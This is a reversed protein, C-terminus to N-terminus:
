HAGDTGPALPLNLVTGHPGRDSADGTGPWLPMQQSTIVLARPDDQLLAQTGNGHHVDFDVVAVRALGHHELAHKAAIAVNGFVCFGMPLAQEAHHGPPRMAVFANGVTGDMVMDVAKVAGGAGRWIANHSTPSLFTEDDTGIDLGVFGQAPMRNRISDIYSQPHCRAITGDEALPADVRMVDLDALATHIYSLRAVQEPAGPPVHHSLGDRHTLLATAM